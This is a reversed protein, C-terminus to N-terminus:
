ILFTTADIMTIADNQQMCLHAVNRLYAMFADSKWRLLFKIQDTTAGSTHLLVCAGVRISHSSYQIKDQKPDLNYLSCAVHRMVRTIEADHLFLVRAGDQYVALPVNTTTIGILRDFRSLISHMRRIYCRLPSKESRIFLKEEGHNGNKQHSFRTKIRWVLDPNQLFDSISVKRKSKDYCTVDEVCFAISIGDFTAQDGINKNASTQAYESLRHGDLLGISNWDECTKWLGNRHAKTDINHHELHQQMDLTYPELKNPVNEHREVEAITAHIDPSMKTDSPNNYRPDRGTFLCIFSAAAHLYQKITASKIYQGKITRGTALAVTYLAFTAVRREHLFDPGNMLYDDRLKMDYCFKLFHLRRSRLTGSKRPDDTAGAKSQLISLLAPRLLTRSEAPFLRLKEDLTFHLIDPIHDSLATLPSRKLLQGHLDVLLRAFPSNTRADNMWKETPTNDTRNLLVPFQSFGTPFKHALGPHAHSTGELRVVTAVEQLFAVLFELSNIHVYNPNSAKLKTGAVIDPSWVVRFWFLLEDSYAGGGIFSADGYSTFHPDRPIMQPIYIEWTETELSHKIAQLKRLVPEDLRFRKNANWLFTAAEKGILSALRYRLSPPLQDSIIQVKDNRKMYHKISQHRSRLFQSLVRQLNFYSCRMWRCVTTATSVHGLLIAIDRLSLSPTALTESLLKLLRDRKISPLRVTMRRLNILWGVTKREHSFTNAFKEWSICDRIGNSPNPFGLLIYLALISASITQRLFLAVDAYLCNDVHHDFTPSKRSGDAKLVGQNKSDPEAPTFAAIDSPTPLPALSLKPLYKAVRPITTVAAYWLSQALQQRVMAVVEWQAPSTNDGFSLGTCFFLFGFLMFMHMGVVNPNWKVHRFAGSVDDDCIYIEEQPYTIRLNYIWILFNPFSRPFCIEPETEKSTFDNVAMATLSPHHTADFIIRPKRYEHCADVLGLPTTHADRIYPLLAPNAALLYNRLIDKEVASQTKSVDDYVTKHNGYAIFTRLNEDTSEANVYKPAGDLFIRKLQTILFPDVNAERLIPELTPWDRHADTHINGVFRVATPISLDYHLLCATFMRSWRHMAVSPTLNPPIPQQLPRFDVFRHEQILLSLLHISPCVHFLTALDTQSLYRSKLLFIWTHEFKHETSFWRDVSDKGHPSDVALFVPSPLKTAAWTERDRKTMSPTSSRGQVSVELLEGFKEQEADTFQYYQSDPPLASQHHASPTASPQSWAPTSTSIRLLNPQHSM